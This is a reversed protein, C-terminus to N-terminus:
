SALAREVTKFREQVMPNNGVDLIHRGDLQVLLGARTILAYRSFLSSAHLKGAGLSLSRYLTAVQM